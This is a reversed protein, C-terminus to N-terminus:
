ENAEYKLTFHDFCITNIDIFMIKSSDIRCEGAKQAAIEYVNNSFVKSELIINNKRIKYYGTNSCPNFGEFIWLTFVKNKELKLKIQIRQDRYSYLREQSEFLYRNSFSM